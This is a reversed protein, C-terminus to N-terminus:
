LLSLRGGIVRDVLADRFGTRWALGTLMAESGAGTISCVSIGAFDTSFRSLYTAQTLLQILLQGGM